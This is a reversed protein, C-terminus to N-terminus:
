RNLYDYAPSSIVRVNKAPVLYGDEGNGYAQPSIMTLGANPKTIGYDDDDFGPPVSVNRELTAYQPVQYTNHDAGHGYSYPNIDEIPHRLADGLRDRRPLTPTSSPMEANRRPDREDENALARHRDITPYPARRRLTIRRSYESIINPPHWKQLRRHFFAVTIVLGCIIFFFFVLLTVLTVYGRSSGGPEDTTKEGTLNSTNLTSFKVQYVVSFNIGGCFQEDGQQCPLGCRYDDVKEDLGTDNCSCSCRSGKYVFALLYGIEGCRSSCSKPTTGSNEPYSINYEMNLCGTEYCGLYDIDKVQKNQRDGTCNSVAFGQGLLSVQVFMCSLHLLNLTGIMKVHFVIVMIYQSLQRWSFIKLKFSPSM